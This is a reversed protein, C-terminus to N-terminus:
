LNKMAAVAREVAMFVERVADASARSAMRATAPQPFSLAGTADPSWFLSLLGSASYM